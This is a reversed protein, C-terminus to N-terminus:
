YAGISRRWKMSMQQQQQVVRRFNDIPQNSFLRLCTTIGVCEVTIHSKERRQTCTHM